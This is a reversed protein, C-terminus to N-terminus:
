DQRHPEALGAAGAIATGALGFGAAKDEIPSFITALAIALGIFALVCPMIARLQESTM